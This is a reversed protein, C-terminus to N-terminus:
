QPALTGSDRIGPQVYWREFFEELSGHFRARKTNMWTLQDGVAFYVLTEGDFEVIESDSANVGEDLGTAAIVPNSSSLEWTELDKSRTVFTEFVHSPQRNELYLVYYYGNVHRVTPCATYRNTGFASDPLKTWTELDDSRAFKTTFGPYANDNSEYALVFGDPGECASSNFLHENAQEVIVRQEWNSLDSSKFLTVDNWNGGEFRSAFAYFVGDKVLCSALGYGEAFRSMEEGTGVDRLLLYYDEKAGESGPRHCEMQCLRQNWLFPAVECMDALVLERQELPSTPKAPAPPALETFAEVPWRDLTHFGKPVQQTYQVYALASGKTSYGIEGASDKDVKVGFVKFGMAICNEFDVHLYKGNQVSQVVGDTPTGHPQSFNLVVLKCNKVLARTYTHFGYNGAKLACQPSVMTCGEFIIDHHEPMSENEIRVYGAATDGWEDLSWMNCRRFTIPEERRSLCSAAGCGFARGISICDEVLVSFPEIKDTCDFFLGADSGTAYLHRLKWRDWNIASVTEKTHEESWGKQYARINSWWDYSKFGNRPEGADLVVHGTTGSGLSGDFDGVLENYAGKAGRYAPLMNAEVYTDPRVVVRHGGEDNPVASLAAQVSHFATQWSTGDSNDGLKSVYFIASKSAVSEDTASKADSSAVKPQGEVEVVVVTVFDDTTKGGAHIVYRGENQEITLATRREDALLYANRLPSELQPLELMGDAPWEFIHLYLLTQGDRPKGMTCRGWPLQNPFPSATTGYVSEGNRSLWEGIEQLQRPCPAPITGDARPGVNLLYNGGKSACDVLQHLLVETSKWAKDQRKFGWTNNITMCTEWDVGPLGTPPIQQEPTGFDGAFDGERTLGEMGSRGKDVRNNVLISPKLSRVYDYLEKGQEQTWSDDWEGDFWMVDINPAIELLEKLQGRMFSVYNDFEPEQLRKDWPLRPVYDPHKWDLISYYVGFRIDRRQCAEALEKVLDGSYPTSAIDFDTSESDWLCFGEHHKSVLIIYKMGADQALKAYADANFKSADFQKQLISYEDVPIKANRQTWSSLGDVPKGEWEGAAASYLGWHIFMGYRADRWWGLREDKQTASEELPKCDQPFFGTILENLTGRYFAEALFEHGVQDGWSYNIIVQGNHECFDMDSNNRNQATAITEQQSESLRPNAIQKDSEGFQMIPNLPSSEWNTLDRSRVIAPNYTRGPMAELYVVYFWGDVYRITPCASYRDKTFVAPEDLLKWVMLDKSEAFRSTFRQGVVELPSGVEFAMIFRDDAKCVSSNFLSWGPLNLIQKSQWTKLDKSWFMDITSSGWGPTGLVYMTDGEVLVSGLDHGAAFGPTTEGSTPDVFRFYPEGTQNGKYRTRVSEFRYLQDRFVIPQTEVIDLDITGRKEIKPRTLDDSSDTKEAAYTPTPMIALTLILLRHKLNTM